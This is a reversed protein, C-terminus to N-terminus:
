APRDRRPHPVAPGDLRATSARASAARASAARASATGPAASRPRTPPKSRAAATRLRTIESDKAQIVPSIVTMAAHVAIDIDGTLGCRLFSRWLARRFREPTVTLLDAPERRTGTTV